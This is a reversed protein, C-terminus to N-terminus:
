PAKGSDNMANAVEQWQLENYDKSKTWLARRKQIESLLKLINVEM